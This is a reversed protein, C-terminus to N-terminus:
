PVQELDRLLQELKTRGAELRKVQEKLEDNEKQLGAMRRITERQRTDETKLYRKLVSSLGEGPLSTPFVARKSLIAMSSDRGGADALFLIALAFLHDYYAVSDGIARLSDVRASIMKRSPERVLVGEDETTLTVSHGPLADLSGPQALDDQLTPHLRPTSSCAVLCLFWGMLLHKM